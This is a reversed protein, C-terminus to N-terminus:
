SPNNLIFNYGIRLYFGPYVNYQDIAIRTGFRLNLKNNIKGTLTLYNEWFKYDDETITVRYTEGSFDLYEDLPVSFGGGLWLANVYKEYYDSEYYDTNYTKPPTPSWEEVEMKKKYADSWVSWNPPHQIGDDDSWAKGVTLTQATGKGRKYFWAM